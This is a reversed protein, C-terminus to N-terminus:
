TQQFTRHMISVRWRSKRSGLVLFYIAESESQSTAATFSPLARQGQDCIFRSKIIENSLAGSFIEWGTTNMKMGCQLEHM